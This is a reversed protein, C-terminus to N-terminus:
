NFRNSACARIYMYEVDGVFVICNGAVTVNAV